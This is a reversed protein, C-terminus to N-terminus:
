NEAEQNEEHKNGHKDVNAGAYSTDHLERYECGCDECACEQQIRPYMTDDDWYINGFVVNESGCEPCQGFDYIM